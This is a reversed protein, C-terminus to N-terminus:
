QKPIRYEANATFFTSVSDLVCKVICILIM